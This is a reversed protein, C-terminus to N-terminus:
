SLHSTTADGQKSGTGSDVRPKHSRARPGGIEGMTEGEGVGRDQEGWRWM